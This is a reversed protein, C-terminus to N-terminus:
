VRLTTQQSATSRRRGLTFGILVGGVPAFFMGLHVIGRSPVPLNHEQAFQSHHETNGIKTYNLCLLGFVLM